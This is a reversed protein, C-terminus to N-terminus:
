VVTTTMESNPLALWHRRAPGQMTFAFFLRACEFILRRYELVACEEQSNVLTRATYVAIEPEEFLGNHDRSTESRPLLRHIITLGTVLLRFIRVECM